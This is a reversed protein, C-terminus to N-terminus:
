CAPDNPFTRAVVRWIGADQQLSYLNLAPPSVTQGGVPKGSSDLTVVKSSDICAQAIATPPTATLDSSIISVSKVVPRGRLTWGNSRLEEDLNEIEGLITGRAVASLQNSVDTSHPGIAAVSAVFGTVMTTALEKTIVGPPAVVPSPKPVPTASTSPPGMSITGGGAIGDVDSTIAAGVGDEVPAAKAPWAARVGLALAIVAAAFVIFILTSRGARAPMEHKRPPRTMM